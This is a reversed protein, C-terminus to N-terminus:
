GGWYKLFCKGTKGRIRKCQDTKKIFSNCGLKYCKTIDKESDSTTLIVIPILKLKKDSKIEELLELGSKGPLKLDLIIVNPSPSDQFTDLKKLFKHSYLWKKCHVPTDTM